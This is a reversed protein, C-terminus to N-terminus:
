FFHIKKIVKSKYKLLVNSAIECKYIKISLKNAYHMIHFTLQEEDYIMYRYINSKNAEKFKMFYLFHFSYIFDVFSSVIYNNSKRLELESIRMSFNSSPRISSSHLIKIFSILYYHLLSNFLFPRFCQWTKV